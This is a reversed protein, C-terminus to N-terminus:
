ITINQFAMRAKFKKHHMTHVLPLFPLSSDGTRRPNM